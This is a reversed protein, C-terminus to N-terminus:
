RAYPLRVRTLYDAPSAGSAAGTEYIETLPGSRTYGLAELAEQLARIADDVADLPGRHVTELAHHLPVWEGHAEGIDDPVSDDPRPEVPLCVDYDFTQSSADDEYFRGMMPGAPTLGAKAVLERLRRMRRGIEALPGGARLSVVAQEPVAVIDVDYIM